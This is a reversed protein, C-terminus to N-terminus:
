SAHWILWILNGDVTSAIDAEQHFVASTAALTTAVMM